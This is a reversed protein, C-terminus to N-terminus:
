LLRCRGGDSVPEGYSTDAWTRGYCSDIKMKVRLSFGSENKSFSTCIRNIEDDAEGVSGEDIYCILSDYVTFALRGNGSSRLYDDVEIMKLKLIDACSGQTIANVSKYADSTNLFRRRRGLLTRVFGRQRAAREAKRIFTEVEPIEQFYRNRITRAEDESLGLSSALSAIGLNYLISFNLKKGEERSVGLTDALEQHADIGRENYGSVLKPADSYHALLCYECQNYDGEWLVMGPPSSFASRYIVGTERYRKPSQHVDPDSVSLRGSVAGNEDSAMQWFTPHVRDDVIHKERMPIICSDLLHRFKRARIIRRGVESQMLYESPFLDQGQPHARTPKSKPPTKISPDWASMGYDTAVDKIHRGVEHPNFPNIGDIEVVCDDYRAKAKEFADDMLKKPVVLGDRRTRHIVKILDCEVKHVRRLYQEDLVRQQWAWLQFTSTGDGAAYETILPDDGPMKWFKSMQNRDPTGGLRAAIAAYLEEGKKAEVKAVECCAGLSFSKQNEDILAANLATDEVTGNIVIGDKEAMWLDFAANHMVVRLDPRAFLGKLYSIVPGAEVNGGSEHRIPYYVTESPGHGWTLVYGVPRDAHINLGSTETDFAVVSVTNLDPM